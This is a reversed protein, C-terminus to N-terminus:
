RRQDSREPALPPDSMLSTQGMQNRGTGHFGSRNDRELKKVPRGLAARNFYHKSRVEYFWLSSEM